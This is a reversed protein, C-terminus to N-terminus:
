KNGQLYHCLNCDFNIFSGKQAGGAAV